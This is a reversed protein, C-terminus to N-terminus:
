SSTRMRTFKTAYNLHYECLKFTMLLKDEKLLRVYYDSKNYCDQNCQTGKSELKVFEIKFKQSM